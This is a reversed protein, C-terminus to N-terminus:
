QRVIKNQLQHGNADYVVAIYIGPSLGATAIVTRGSGISQQKVCAGTTNYLLFRNNGSAACSFIEINDHSVWISVENKASSTEPAVRMIRSYVTYGTKETAKVRYYRTYAVTGTDTFRNKRFYLDTSAISGIQRFTVGDTSREIEYSAINEDNTLQWNISTAADLVVANSYQFHLPLVFLCQKLVINDIYFDNGSTADTTARINITYITDEPVSFVTNLFDWPATAADSQLNSSIPLFMSYTNIIAGNKVLELVIAAPAFAGQTSRNANKAAAAFIYNMGALLHLNTQIFIKKSTDTSGNVALFKDNWLGTTAGFTPRWGTINDNLLNGRVASSTPSMQNDVQVSGPFCTITYQQANSLVGLFSSTNLSYGYDTQGFGLGSYLDPHAGDSFNARNPHIDKFNFTNVGFRGSDAVTILNQELTNSACSSVAAFQPFDFGFDINSSLDFRNNVFDISYSFAADPVTAEAVAFYVNDYTVQPIECVPILSDPPVVVISYNGYLTGITSLCFQYAGTADTTTTYQIGDQRTLVITVGQLPADVGLTYASSRDGDDKFVTGGLCTGEFMEVEGLYIPASTNSLTLRYYQYATSNSVAYINGQYAGPFTESSRTDLVTWLSNDNSGELTWDTPDFTAGLSASNISYARCTRANGAGLDFTVAASGCDFVTPTGGNNDTLNFLGFTVACDSTKSVDPTLFDVLTNQAYLAPCVCCGVGILFLQKVKKLIM